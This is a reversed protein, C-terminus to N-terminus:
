CKKIISKKKNLPHTNANKSPCINIFVVVSRKFGLSHPYFAVPVILSIVPVILSIVPVILSIVPVILSIVPVTIFLLLLYCIIYYIYFYTLLQTSLVKTIL